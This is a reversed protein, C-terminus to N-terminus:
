HKCTQHNTSYLIAYKSQFLCTLIYLLRYYGQGVGQSEAQTKVTIAYTNDDTKVATVVEDNIYGFGSDYIDASTITGNAVIVNASIVSNNGMNYTNSDDLVATITATAGTDAGVITNGSGFTNFFSLRRLYMVSTNSGTKVLGKGTINITDTDVVSINANAATTLTAVQYSTNFTGTTDVLTITGASNAISYSYVFGTAINATGNSQYVYEGVEISTTNGAVSNVTLVTSPKTSTQEVIEGEAFNLTAGSLNLVLDRKGYGATKREYVRVFPIKTYNQGGDVSVLSAITGIVYDDIEFCDLLIADKDGGPYKVFGYGSGTNANSADLLVDMHAVNGTNRDSLFTSDLRVDEPNALNGVQFTAGTGLGIETVSTQYSSYDGVIYNNNSSVFTGSINVVGISTTNSAM